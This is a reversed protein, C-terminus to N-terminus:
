SNKLSHPNILDHFIVKSSNYDKKQISNNVREFVLDYFHDRPSKNYIKCSNGHKPALGLLSPAFSELTQPLDKLHCIHLDINERYKSSERM